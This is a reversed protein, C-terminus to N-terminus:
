ASRQTLKDIASQQRESEAQVFQTVFQFERMQNIMQTTELVAQVNSEELAGQVLHPTAVPTTTTGNDTSFLRNGEAHMRNADNPQVIGIKGLQGNQSSMTGDGAVLIDTDAPSLRVPQGATNLLANGDVDGVTGDPQLEFRGARTLRPGQKTQLTFFGPGNIALDFPNSTHALPGEAQSRYTARDQTYAVTEGGPPADTQTQRSIWDSFLTKEAKFGTTGMNALNTSTVDMARQQAILRSLAIDTATQM